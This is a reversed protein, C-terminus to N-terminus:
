RTREELTALREGHDGVASQLANLKTDVTDFRTDTQDFRRNTSEKLGNMGVRVGGIVLGFTVGAQVLWIWVEM